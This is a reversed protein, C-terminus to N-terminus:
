QVYICVPFVHLVMYSLHILRYLGEANCRTILMEGVARAPVTQQLDQSLRRTYQSCILSAM